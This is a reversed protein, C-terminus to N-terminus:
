AGDGDGNETPTPSPISNALWVMGFGTSIGVVAGIAMAMLAVAVGKGIEQVGPGLELLMWYVWIYILGALVWWIAGSLYRRLVLWALSAAAAGAVFPLLVLSAWDAAGAIATPLGMVLGEGVGWIVFGHILLAALYGAVSLLIWGSGNPFSRRIVFWQCAGTILGISVGLLAREAVFNVTDGLWRDAAVEGAVVGVTWGIVCTVPWWYAHAVRRRVALWQSFGIGAGVIGLFVADSVPRYSFGIGMVVGYGLLYGM